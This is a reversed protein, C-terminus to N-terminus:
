FSFTTKIDLMYWGDNNRVPNATNNQLLATGHIQHGELKMVWWSTIDFRLSLALDKQYGDSSVALKEGSRDAANNYFEGYYLGPEFWKTVRYASGVYWGQAMRRSRSVDTGNRSTTTCFNRTMEEAQFTWPGHVYELSYQQFPANYTDKFNVPASRAHYEAEVDSVYSVNAGARLGLVPTDWWLQAGSFLGDDMGSYGEYSLSGVPGLRQNGYLSVGDISTFFDRWRADYVTQPLLVSTRAVDIDQIANYIGQPRRARGARIGLQDCVSYDITAYDLFFDNNGVSGLDFNFVQASIRTNAFPSISANLGAENFQFSGDKTNGALYNYKSTAIFGQSVFGHFTIPPMSGIHLDTGEVSLFSAKPPTVADTAAPAAGTTGVPTAPKDEAYAAACVALVM